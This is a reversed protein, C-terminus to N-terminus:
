VFADGSSEHSVGHVEAEGEVVEECCHIWVRVELERVGGLGQEEGPAEERAGFVIERAGSQGRRLERPRGACSTDHVRGRSLTDM